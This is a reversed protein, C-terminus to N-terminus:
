INKSASRLVESESVPTSSNRCLLPLSPLGGKLAEVWYVESQPRWHLRTLKIAYIPIWSTSESTCISRVYQRFINQWVTWSIFGLVWELNFVQTTKQKHNCRYKMTITKFNNIRSGTDQQFMMIKVKFCSGGFYTHCTRVEAHVILCAWEYMAYVLLQIIVMVVTVTSIDDSEISVLLGCFVGCGRWSNACPWGYM